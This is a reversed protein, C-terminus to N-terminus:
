PKVQNAGGAAAEKDAKRKDDVSDKGLKISVDDPLLKLVFNCLLVSLSVGMCLVHQEWDLGKTHLKFFAGTYQIILFNVVVIIIWIVIFAPNGFFNDCINLEDHIKRAAIMNVIQLWIFLNFIFTIHRSYNDDPFEYLQDAPVNNDLQYGVWDEEKVKLLKKYLEEGNVKYLRGPFVM